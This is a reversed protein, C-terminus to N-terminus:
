NVKIGCRCTMAYEVAYKFRRENEAYITVLSQGKQVNEGTHAHLFIGAGRDLPAGALRAIHTVQTSDVHSVIGNSPSLMEYQYKGIPLDEPLLLKKAGQAKVIKEMATLAKGSELIEKALALGKGRRAKGVFEFLRGALLLSRTELDRPRQTDQRLVWLCDRAELNVGIGNGVPQSGDTITCRVNISLQRGLREFQTSLLEAKKRTKIKTGAGCPIEILVHKSGVSLKKAMISALMQGEPDISLPYEVLIIKDDAPALNLAGGWTIFANAERICKKLQNITLSVPALAEMTDATGSPSTIARSSTKPTILGASALIPVVIITTRNGPVGGISHIDVIQKGKLKLTKGNAAMAKTLQAVEAMSMGRTANAVVFSALEIDTLKDKVIDDVIVQIEEKSLTHGNIKKRIYDVSEPKNGIQVDVIDGKKANIASLAEEFIGIIGLPIAHKSEGIDLVAITSKRGNKIILRDLPHVDLRQADKKNLIAVKVGGTSIDMNKIRFKM